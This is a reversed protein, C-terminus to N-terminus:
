PAAPERALHARNATRYLVERLADIQNEWDLDRSTGIAAAAMRERLERDQELRVIASALAHPDSPPVLLGDKGDHIIEEQGGGRTAIGPVGSAFAELLVLGFGEGTRTPLVFVDAARYIDPLDEDSVNGLLRVNSLRRESITNRIAQEEPGRGVIAICISAPLRDAAEVLTDVGNRFVLRRVTLAIFQDDPLDFKRRIAQKEAVGVPSFRTTSVGCYLLDIPKDVVLERVFQRTFESIALLRNASRFTYSGLLRDAAREVYNWPFSYSVFPNYQILVIPRGQRKAVAVAAVSSLYSHGHVLVVDTTRMLGKLTPLLEPSFIPYPISRRALVDAVRVRHVPYGDERQVAPNGALRSTVVTPLDGRARLGRAQVQAVTEIGGRHPWWYHAVILVRLGGRVLPSTAM